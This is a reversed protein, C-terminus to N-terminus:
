QWLRVTWLKTTADPKRQMELSVPIVPLDTSSIEELAEKVGTFGGELRVEWLVPGFERNLLTRTQQRLREVLPTISAENTSVNSQELLTLDHRRWLVALDDNAQLRRSRDQWTDMQKNLAQRIPDLERRAQAVRQTAANKAAQQQAIADTSPRARQATTLQTTLQKIQANPKKTLVYSYTIFIILAPLVLMFIRDRASIQIAGLNSM